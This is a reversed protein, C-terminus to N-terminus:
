CGTLPTKTPAGHFGIFLPRTKPTFSLRKPEFAAWLFTHTDLLCNM